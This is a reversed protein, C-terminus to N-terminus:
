TDGNCTYNWTGHKLGSDNGTADNISQLQNTSNGTNTYTYTLQDILTNAQYRNMTTQQKQTTGCPKLM